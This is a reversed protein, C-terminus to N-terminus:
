ATVMKGVRAAALGMTVVSFALLALIPVTVDLVSGGAALDGLGRLFWAHPTLLSLKALLGPGQSIPFFSGGLLGLVVAVISQANAAQEPSNAMTAIVGMIGLASLVGFVMLVGVALPDGWEAGVMLSTASALVIMAVLGVIFSTIAKGAVISMRPIPSALLRPMTGVTREEILSSVGFQVTFFLFFVAMGASFFTTGSLERTAATVDDLVVADAMTQTAAAIVVPDGHGGFLAVAGALQAETVDAAYSSAIADAIEASIPADANGVVQISTEAGALVAAEFGAPIIWAVALDGSEVRSRLDDEDALTELTILGDNEVSPLVEGTFVSSLESRDHDVVATTIEFSAGSFDPIILSFIFALGLPAVIGLLFASRDRVRQRLDKSAILLAANM